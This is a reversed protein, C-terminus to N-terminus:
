IRVCTRGAFLISCNRVYYYVKCVDSTQNLSNASSNRIHIGANGMFSGCLQFGKNESIRATILSRRLGHLVLIQSYRFPCPERLGMISGTLACFFDFQKYFM